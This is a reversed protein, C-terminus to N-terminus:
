VYQRVIHSGEASSGVLIMAFGDILCRKAQAVVDAPFSALDSRGVFEVVGRTSGKIADNTVKPTLRAPASSASAQAGLRVGATGAAAAAGAAAVSRLFEKRNM